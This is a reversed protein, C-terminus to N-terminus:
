TNEEASLNEYMVWSEKFKEHEGKIKANYQIVQFHSKAYCIFNTLLPMCDNYKCKYIFYKAVILIEDLAKDTVMNRDVGFLVLNETFKLRDAIYCKNRFRQQLLMWFNNVVNCRWFLHELSEREQGCFTCKEDTREKIEKLVINTSLVRHVIRMQFWKLKIERIKQIKYFVQKWNMECNLKESWKSCCNPKDNNSLLQSYYTKAGKHVSYLLRLFLPKENAISNQTNINYKKLYKQLFYLILIKNVKM